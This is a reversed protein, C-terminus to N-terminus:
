SAAGGLLPHEALFSIIEDVIVEHPVDRSEVMIEAEAYVPYRQTILNRMVAQPDQVKLLPRNDRKMVRRMLVDLDAKLWVAIGASRITARTEANMYAGGGTALVQPGNALLRRIVRREGDRFYAEGHDAFIEPISKQASREIEDDADVFPIDLRAALRRGVSSKGCGMLGVMVLSRAGLRRKITAAVSTAPGTARLQQSPPTM